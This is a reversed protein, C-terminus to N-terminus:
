LRAKIDRYAAWGILGFPVAQILLFLGSVSLRSLSIVRPAQPNLGEKIQNAAIEIARAPPYNPNTEHWKRVDQFIIDSPVGPSSWVVKSLFPRKADFHRCAENSYTSAATQRAEDSNTPILSGPSGPPPANSFDEVGLDKVKDYARAFTREAWAQDSNLQAQWLSISALAADKTYALSAFLITFFLTCLTAFGCLVHHTLTIHYKKNWLRTYVSCVYWCLGALLIGILVTVRFSGPEKLMFIPICGFLLSFLDTLM